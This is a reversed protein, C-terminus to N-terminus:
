RQALRAARLSGECRLLQDRRALEGGGGRPRLRLGSSCAARGPLRYAAEGPPALRLWPFSGRPASALPGNHSSPALLGPVRLLLALVWAGDRLAPRSGGAEGAVWTGHGGRGAAAGWGARKGPRGSAAGPLPLTAGGARRAAGRLQGVRRLGSTDCFPLADLVSSLGCTGARCAAPRM